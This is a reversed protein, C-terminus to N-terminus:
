EEQAKAEASRQPIHRYSSELFHDLVCTKSHDPITEKWIKECAFYIDLVKLQKINVVKIQTKQKEKILSSGCIM